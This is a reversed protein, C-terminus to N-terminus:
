PKGHQDLDEQNRLRAKMVLPDALVDQDNIKVVPDVHHLASPGHSQLATWIAALAM